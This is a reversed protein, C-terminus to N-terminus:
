HRSLTGWGETNNFPPIDFRALMVAEGTRAGAKQGETEEIRACVRPAEISARNGAKQTSHAEGEQSRRQQSDIYKGHIGIEYNPLQTIKYDSVLAQCDAFKPGSLNRSRIKL